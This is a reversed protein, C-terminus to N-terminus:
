WNHGMARFQRKKDGFFITERKRVKNLLSKNIKAESMIERKTWPLELMVRWLWVEIAEIKKSM